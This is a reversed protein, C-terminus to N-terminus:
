RIGLPTMLVGWAGASGRERDSKALRPQPGAPRAPSVPPLSAQQGSLANREWACPIVKAVRKSSKRGLGDDHKRTLNSSKGGCADRPEAPGQRPCREASSNSSRNARSTLTNISRAALPSSSIRASKWSQAFPLSEFSVAGAAAAEAPEHSSEEPVPCLPASVACLAGSRNCSHYSSQCGRSPTRPDEGAGIKNVAIEHEERAGADTSPPPPDLAASLLGPVAADHQKRLATDAAKAAAEVITSAACPSPQRSLPEEAESASISPQTRDIRFRHQNQRLKNM